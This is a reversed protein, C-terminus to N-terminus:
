GDSAELGLTTRLHVVKVAIELTPWDDRRLDIASLM